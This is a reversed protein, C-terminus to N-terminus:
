PRNWNVSTRGSSTVVSTTEGSLFDSLESYFSSSPVGDPEFVFSLKTTNGATLILGFAYPEKETINELTKGLLEPLDSEFDVLLVTKKGAGLQALAEVLASHFSDAGSSISTVPGKFNTLISSMASAANHVSMSFDTPSVPTQSSINKLIKESRGLEGYRSSFIISDVAQSKLLSIAVEVAARCGKTLRRATMMPLKELSKRNGKGNIEKREPFYTLWDAVEITKEIM